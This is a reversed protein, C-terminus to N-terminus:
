QAEWLARQTIGCAKEGHWLILSAIENSLVDALDRCYEAKDADDSMAAMTHMHRRLSLKVWVQERLPTDLLSMESMDGTLALTPPVPQKPKRRKIM